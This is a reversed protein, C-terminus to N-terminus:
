VGFRKEALKLGVWVAALGCGNSMLVNLLVAEWRGNNLLHLTEWGYTSFTTFAGLIGILIFPRYEMRVLHPGTFYGGLFGIAFCGAVNVILTGIPFSGQTLRQAFGSVVYRLVAGIAGGAAIMLIKQMPSRNYVRSGSLLM